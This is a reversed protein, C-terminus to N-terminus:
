NSWGVGVSKTVQLPLSSYEQNRVFSPESCFVFNSQQPNEFYAKVTLLEKLLSSKLPTVPQIKTGFLLQNRVFIQNRAFVQNRVFVQNWAFHTTSIFCFFYSTFSYKLSFMKTNKMDNTQGFFSMIVIRSAM